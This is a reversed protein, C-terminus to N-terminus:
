VGKWVVGQIYMDASHTKQFYQQFHLIQEYHAIEGKGVPNEVRNSFMEGNEELNDEAFPKM